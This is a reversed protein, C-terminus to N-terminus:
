EAPRQLLQRSPAFGLREYVPVAKRGSHVTVRSAGLRLAPATAAQVLGSGIRKGGQETVVCVSQIDAPRRPTTGPRPGPPGLALLAPGVARSRAGRAALRAAAADSVLVWRLRYRGEAILREGARSGEAGFRGRSRVLAAASLRRCDDVRPREAGSTRVGTGSVGRGSKNIGPGRM